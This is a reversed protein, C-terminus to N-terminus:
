IVAIVNSDKDVVKIEFDADTYIGAIGGVTRKTLLNKYTRETISRDSRPIINAIVTKSNDYHTYVNIKKM